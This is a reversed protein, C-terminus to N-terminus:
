GGKVFGIVIRVGKILVYLGILAGAAPLILASVDDFDIADTIASYDPGGALAPAGNAVALAAVTAGFGYKRVQNRFKM